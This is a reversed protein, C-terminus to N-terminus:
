DGSPVFRERVLQYFDALRKCIVPWTYSTEVEKSANVVLEARLEPQDLRARAEMLSNLDDSQFLMGNHQDKILHKLGGVASAIVPLGASWAELAVIGFPEHLSPLLFLDAQQYAATLREDDPPLGPFITVREQLNEQRLFKRLKDGYWAVTEPGILLLHSDEGLDRCRRMMRLLLIQNKQYDIRSVCLYLRCQRSLRLHARWDFDVKTRFRETEVGNPLYLVPKDPYLEQLHALENAGVCIIGDASAVTDAKRRLLRDTLGGWSLTGRFVEMMKQTEEPPIDLFGGHFSICYPIKRQRSVMRTLEALRGSNHIHLLDYEEGQLLRRLGPSYPNGGKKDLTEKRWAPMPWWPYIYPFRQIRVGEREEMGPKACASTALIDCQVELAPLGRATNWVVTETGGWETFSFRRIIQATRLMGEFALYDKLLSALLQM